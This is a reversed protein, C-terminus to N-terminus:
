GAAAFVDTCVKGMKQAYAVGDAISIKTFPPAGTYTVDDNSVDSDPQVLCSVSGKWAGLSPVIAGGGDEWVAHDGIGSIATVDSGMVDIVGSHKPDNVDFSVTTAGGGFACQGPFTKPDSVNKTIAAVDGQIAACVKADVSGNNGEGATSTPLGAASALSAAASAPQAASASSSKSSNCGSLAAVAVALLVGASATM